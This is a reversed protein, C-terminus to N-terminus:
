EKKLIPKKEVPHHVMENEEEKKLGLTPKPEVAAQEEETKPEQEPEAHRKRRDKTCNSPVSADCAKTVRNYRTGSQCRRHMVENATCVWYRTCDTLDAQQGTRLCQALKNRQNWDRLKKLDLSKGQVYAVSLGVLL